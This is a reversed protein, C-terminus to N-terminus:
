PGDALSGPGSGRDTDQPQGPGQTCRTGPCGVGAPCPPCLAPNVLQRQRGERRTRKSSRSPQTLRKKAGLGEEVHITTRNGAAGVGRLVGPGPGLVQPPQM